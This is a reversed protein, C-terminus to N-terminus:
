LRCALTGLALITTLTQDLRIIHCICWKSSNNVRCWWWKSSISFSNNSPPRNAAEPVRVTNCWTRSNIRCWETPVVLMGASMVIRSWRLSNPASITHSILIPRAGQIAKVTLWAGIECRSNTVPATWLWIQQITITDETKLGWSQRKSSPLSPHLARPVRKNNSALTCWELLRRSVTNSITKIRSVYNSRIRPSSKSFSNSFRRKHCWKNTKIKTIIIALKSLQPPIINPTKHIPLMTRILPNTNSLPYVSAQPNNLSWENSIQQELRPRRSVRHSVRVITCIPTAQSTSRVRHIPRSAQRENWLPTKPTVPVKTITPLHLLLLMAWVQSTTFCWAATRTYLPRQTPHPVQTRRFCVELRLAKRVQLRLLDKTWELELMELIPWLQVKARKLHKRLSPTRRDKSHSTM